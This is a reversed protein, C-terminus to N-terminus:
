WQYGIKFTAESTGILSSYPSRNDKDGWWSMSTFKVYLSPSINYTIVPMALFTGVTGGDPPVYTIQFYPIVRGQFWVLKMSATFLDMDEAVTKSSDLKSDFDGISEHIWQFSFNSNQHPALWKVLYDKDIALMWKDVPKTRFMLLKPGGPGIVLDPVAISVPFNTFHSYEGRLIANLPQIFFDFYGGYINQTPHTIAVTTPTRGVFDKMVFAPDSVVDRFYVASVSLKDGINATIKAGYEQKNTPVEQWVNFPKFGQFLISTYPAEMSHDMPAFQTPRIDPIWLLDFNVNLGPQPPISYNLRGMWLPIKLDDPNQFFMSFSNDPPNIVDLLVRGSAEGWSVIQRGPRFFADGFFGNYTFDIFAERLDNEFRIDKLGYDFRTGGRNDPINSYKNARFDFISDYAGRYTLHVKEIGFSGWHIEPFVDIDFKLTNRQQVLNLHDMFGYQFGNQDRLIVNSEFYGHFDVKVGTEEAGVEAAFMVMLTVIIFVRVGSVKGRISRM